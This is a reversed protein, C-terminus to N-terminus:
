HQNLGKKVSTKMQEAKQEKPIHLLVKTLVHLNDCRVPSSALSFTKVNKLAPIPPGHSCLPASMTAAWLVIASCHGMVSAANWAM